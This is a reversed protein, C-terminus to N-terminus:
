THVSWVRISGLEGRHISVASNVKSRISYTFFCLPYTLGLLDAVPFSLDAGVTASYDSKLQPYQSGFSSGTAKSSDTTFRRQLNSRADNNSQQFSSFFSNQGRPPSTYGSYPFEENPSRPNPFRLEEM